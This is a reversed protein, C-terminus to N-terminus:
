LNFFVASRFVNWMLSAVYRPLSGRRLPRFGLEQHAVGDCFRSSLKEFRASAPLSCKHSLGLTRFEVGVCM